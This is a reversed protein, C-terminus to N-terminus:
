VEGVTVTETETIPQASAVEKEILTATASLPNYARSAADEMREKLGETWKWKENHAERLEKSLESAEARGALVSVVNVADRFTSDFLQTLEGRYIDMEAQYATPDFKRQNKYLGYVAKEIKVGDEDRSILDDMSIANFDHLGPVSAVSQLKDKTEKDLMNVAGVGIDSVVKAVVSNAKDTKGVRKKWEHRLKNIEDATPSHWDVFDSKCMESAWKGRKDRADRIRKIILDRTRGVARKWRSLFVSLTPAKARVCGDLVEYKLGSRKNCLERRTFGPVNKEGRERGLSVYIGASISYRGSEAWEPVTYGTLLLTGESVTRLEGECPKFDGNDRWMYQGLMNAEMVTQGDVLETEHLFHGNAKREFSDVTLEMLGDSQNIKPDLFMLGNSFDRRSHTDYEYVLQGYAIRKGISYSGTFEVPTSRKQDYTVTGLASGSVQTHCYTPLFPCLDTLLNIRDDSIHRDVLDNSMCVNALKSQWFIPMKGTAEGLVQCIYPVHSMLVEDVMQMTAGPPLMMETVETGKEYVARAVLMQLKAAACIFAGDRSVGYNGVFAKATSTAVMANPCVPTGKWLRRWIGGEDSLGHVPFMQTLATLFDCDFQSGDEDGCLSHRLIFYAEYFIDLSMEISPLNGARNLTRKVTRDYGASALVDRSEIAHYVLTLAEAKHRVSLENAIYSSVNGSDVVNLNDNAVAPLQVVGGGLGLKPLVYGTTYYYAMQMAAATGFCGTMGVVRNFFNTDGAADKIGGEVNYHAMKVAPANYRDPVGQVCELEATAPIGISLYCKKTFLRDPRIVGGSEDGKAVYTVKNALTFKPTKGTLDVEDSNVRLSLMASLNEFFESNFEAGPRNISM